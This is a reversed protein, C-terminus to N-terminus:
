ALYSIQGYVVHSCRIFRMDGSTGIRVVPRDDKSDSIVASHATTPPRWGVPLTEVLDSPAANFLITVYGASRTADWGTGSLRQVTEIKRLAVAVVM